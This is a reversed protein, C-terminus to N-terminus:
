GYCEAEAFSAGKADKTSLIPTQTPELPWDIGIQEDDWRVIREESPTYPQTCKYIFDAYESLVLFGHAFGPPIWMQRKNEASLLTGTWRGFHPSSRRMDVAVDFVEGTVVRVLKGQAPNLQYHLGRLVGKKSRSHNEQVFDIRIDAREFHERHWTELFFGRDDQYVRPEIIVVDPILSPTFNM